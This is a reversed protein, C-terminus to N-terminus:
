CSMLLAKVLSVRLVMGGGHGARAAAGFAFLCDPLAAIPAHGDPIFARENPVAIVDGARLRYEAQASVASRLLGVALL